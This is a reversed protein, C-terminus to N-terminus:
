EPASSLVAEGSDKQVAKIGGLDLATEGSWSHKLVLGTRRDVWATGQTALTGEVDFAKGAVTVSRTLAGAGKYTIKASRRGSVTEGGAYSFDLSLTGQAGQALSAPLLQVLDVDKKWALGSALPKDPLVVGLPGISRFTATLAQVAEVIDPPSEPESWAVVSGNPRVSLTLNVAEAAKRLRAASAADGDGDLNLRTAQMHVSYLGDAKRSFKLEWEVEMNQSARQGVAGTREQTTKYTYSLTRGNAVDLAIPGGDGCGSASLALGAPLLFLAARM